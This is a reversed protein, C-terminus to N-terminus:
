RRSTTAPPPPPTSRTAVRVSGDSQRSVLFYEAETGVKYTLGREELRALQNKLIVRPTFGWPQGDVEIDCM